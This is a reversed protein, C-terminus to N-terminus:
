TTSPKAQFGPSRLIQPKPTKRTQTRPASHVPNRRESCDKWVAFLMTEKRKNGKLVAISISDCSKIDDILIEILMANAALEGPHRWGDTSGRMLAADRAANGLFSSSAKLETLIKLSWLYTSRSNSTTIHNFYVIMIVLLVRFISASISQFITKLAQAM